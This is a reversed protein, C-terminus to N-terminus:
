ERNYRAAAEEAAKRKMAERIDRARQEAARSKEIVRQREVSDLTALRDDAEALSEGRPRLGLARLALRALEERREPDSVLKEVPVLPAIADLGESLFKRARGAFGGREVFWPDHLLWAAVLIARHAKGLPKPLGEGGLDRVLDNVIADINVVGPELLFEGPCEALRRLLTELLPGESM